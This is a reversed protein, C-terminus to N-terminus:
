RAGRQKGQPFSANMAQQPHGGFGWYVLIKFPSILGFTGPSEGVQEASRAM